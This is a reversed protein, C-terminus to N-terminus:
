KKVFIGESSYLTASVTRIGRCYQILVLICGLSETRRHTHTETFEVYNESYQYVGLLEEVEIQSTIIVQFYMTVVRIVTQFCFQRYSCLTSVLEFM